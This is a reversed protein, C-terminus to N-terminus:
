EFTTETSAGAEPPAFAAQDLLADVCAQLSGLDATLVEPAPGRKPGAMDTIAPARPTLGRGIEDDDLLFGARTQSQVEERM